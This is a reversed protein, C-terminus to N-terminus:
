KPAAAASQKDRTAKLLEENRVTLRSILTDLGDRKVEAAFSSRYNSVLSIGDVNVDYMMWKENKKFLSFSVWGTYASTTLLSAALIWDSNQWTMPNVLYILAALSVIALFAIVPFALLYLTGLFALPWLFAYYLASSASALRTM